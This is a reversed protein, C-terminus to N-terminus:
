SPAFPPPRPAHSALCAASRNGHTGRRSHSWQRVAPARTRVDPALADPGPWLASNDWAAVSHTEDHARHSALSAGRPIHARRPRYPRFGSRVSTWVKLGRSAKAAILEPRSDGDLDKAIVAHLPERSRLVNTTRTTSLWVQVVSPERSDITVRDPKGDGDFDAILVRESAHVHPAGLLLGLCVLWLARRLYTMMCHMRIAALIYCDAHGAPRM